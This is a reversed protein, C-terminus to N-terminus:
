CCSVVEFCTSATTCDATVKDLGQMRNQVMTLYERMRESQQTLMHDHVKLLEPSLPTPTNERDMQLRYVIQLLTPAVSCGSVHADSVVTWVSERFLLGSGSPTLLSTYALVVRHPENFKRTVSVGDVFTGALLGDLTMSVQQTSERSTRESSENEALAATGAGPTAVDCVNTPISLLSWLSADIAELSATLPTNTTFEVTRSAVAYYSSTTNSVLADVDSRAFVQLAAATNAYVCDHLHRSLDTVLHAYTRSAATERQLRLPVLRQEM